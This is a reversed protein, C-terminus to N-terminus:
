QGPQALETTDRRRGRGKFAMDIWRDGDGQKVIFGHYEARPVVVRVFKRHARMACSLANVPKSLTHLTWSLVTEPTPAPGTLLAKDPANGCDEETYRNEVRSRYSMLCIHDPIRIAGEDWSPVKGVQIYTKNPKERSTRAKESVRMAAAIINKKCQGAGSVLLREAFVTLVTDEVSELRSKQISRDNWWIM